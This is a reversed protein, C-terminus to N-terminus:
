ETLQHQVLRGFSWGVPVRILFEPFCGGYDWDAQHHAAWM